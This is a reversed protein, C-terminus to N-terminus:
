VIENNASVMPFFLLEERNESLMQGFFLRIYKNERSFKAALVADHAISFESWM